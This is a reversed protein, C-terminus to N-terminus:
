PTAVLGRLREHVTGPIGLSTDAGLEALLAATEPWAQYHFSQKAGEALRFATRGRWDRADVDAGREVLLRIVENLGSFAACHLATFDGENAANVDLGAEILIDIAEEAMPQRAARPTNTWHGWRGCGAAAMLPTTGDNSTIGPRAGARLLRRLVDATSRHTSWGNRMRGPGPNTAFAAVWLPTAGAVDGTGTAFTDYAGNRVFGQETVDSATMRADPDAGRTLLADVLPLRERLAIRGGRAGAGGHKRNWAKLWTGVPGAAAHLATVGDVEGNPDAGRELLFHAFASQGVIVAYALPHAGDVGRDDVRAGAALLVKATEIDGNRAAAILPSFAQRPQPHVDAGRGVLARVVDLRREAVAWMLATEHTAGTTADVDAGRNLLAEVARLNGTRAATMLPTLGNSQAANPDAGAALLREVMAASGNESARALPTVGHDDAANVDAGAALLLEVAEADDWHAAWLLATAGDARAANADAGDAALLARVRATDREAMAEVLRVDAAASAAPGASSGPASPGGPGAAGADAAPLLVLSLGALLNTLVRM